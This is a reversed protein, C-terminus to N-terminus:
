SQRKLIKAAKKGDRGDSMALRNLFTLVAARNVESLKPLLSGLGDAVKSLLVERCNAARHTTEVRFLEALIKSHWEPRANGLRALNDIGHAATVMSEDALAAILVNLVTEDIQGKSDTAVLHGAIDMAAWRMITQDSELDKLYTSLNDQFWEPRHGALHSLTKAAASRVKNDEAGLEERIAAVISVEGAKAFKSALWHSKSGDKIGREVPGM